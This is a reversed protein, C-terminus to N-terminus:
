SATYPITFSTAGACVAPSTSTTITPLPNVTVSGTVNSSTCGAENKVTLTYSISSGSAGSSLNVTIPSSTLTGNTVTTIGTGSISYTTPTGTTATYPITFSTAGACIAPSADTTITPVPNVSVNGTVNNSICGNANKVTLTYSYSSGTAASSLNITIPTAPLSANTVTTIGTGSISYTTPSNTTGTYPITFTTAGECIAPSASVTITPLQNVTILGTNVRASECGGVLCAAQYTTNTTPSQTFTGLSLTTGLLTGTAASNYWQVTGSSCTAVLSVSQGNCIQTAASPTVATPPPIVVNTTTTNSSVNSFNSGSVTATNTIACTSPTNGITASFTITTSKGAPLSFGSGSGNVTATEGSNPAAVSKEFGVNEKLAKDNNKEVNIEESTPESNNETQQSSNTRVNAISIGDDIINPNQSIDPATSYAPISV